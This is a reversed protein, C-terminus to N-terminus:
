VLTAVFDRWVRKGTGNQGGGQLSPVAETSSLVAPPETVRVTPATAESGRSGPGAERELKKRFTGGEMEWRGEVKLEPRAGEQESGKSM